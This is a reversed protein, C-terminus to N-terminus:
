KDKFIWEGIIRRMVYEIEFNPPSPKYIKDEKQLQYGKLQHERLENIDIKVVIVLDNDGGDMRCINKYYSKAPRTIRNDGYESSNVQAVLTNLDRSTSEVIASFYNTDKNLESAVLLDIKSRFLSRHVIDALEFCYFTTFYLNRWKFLHYKAVPSKAVKLHYEEIYFEEEPSYHNKLRPILIADNRKELKVPLCTMIFNYGYTGDNIHETGFVLGKQHRKTFNTMLGLFDHPISCEPLVGLEPEPDEGVFKNLIRSIRSYRKTNVVPTGRVSRSAENQWDVKINALGITLKNDAELDKHFNTANSQDIHVETVEVQSAKPGNTSIKSSHRELLEDLKVDKEIDNLEKFLDESQQLFQRKGAIWKKELIALYWNYVSVEFFRIFRPVEKSNFIIEFNEPTFHEWDFKKEILSTLESIKSVNAAWDTFELLPHPVYYNRIFGTYRLSLIHNATDKYFTNRYGKEDSFKKKIKVIQEKMWDDCFIQPNLTCAQALSISLFERLTKKIELDRESYRIKDIETFCSKLLEVLEQKRNAIILYTFVREWYQYFNILNIGKFFALIKSSEDRLESKDAWIAVASRRYLYTALGLKSEKYDKLTRPKGFSDDYLLEFADTDFNADEDTPLFRFESSREEIDKVLKEIVSQSQDAKFEYILVKRNQIFLKEFYNAEGTNRFNFVYEDEKKDPTNEKPTFKTSFLESLNNIIFKVSDPTDEDITFLEAVKSLYEYDANENLKPKNLVIVIDDVYRGYHEPRIATEVLKDFQKLYNNALTYSSVLGLPLIVTEGPEKDDNEGCKKPYTDFILATYYEHVKRLIENLRKIDRKKKTDIELSNWDIRVHYYYSSIDLNIFAVDNEEDLQYKAKRIGEDRWKQYQHIYPKLLARGSEIEPNEKDETLVLRNGYCADSLRADLQVGLKMLWLVSLVHIEIPADIILNVDNLNYYENTRNNSLYQTDNKLHESSVSKPITKYNIEEILKNVDISNNKNTSLTQLVREVLDDFSNEHLYKVLEVRLHLNTNSKDHYVHSILKKVAQEVGHENIGQQTKTRIM